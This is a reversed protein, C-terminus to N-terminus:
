FIAWFFLALLALAVLVAPSVMLSVLLLAAVILLILDSTSFCRNAQEVLSRCGGKLKQWFDSM